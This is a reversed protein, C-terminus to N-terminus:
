ENVGEASSPLLLCEHPRQIESGTALRTPVHIERRSCIPDSIEPRYFLANEENVVESESEALRAFWANPRPIRPGHLKGDAKSVV